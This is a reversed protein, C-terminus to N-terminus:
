IGWEEKVSKYNPLNATCMDLLELTAGSLNPKVYNDVIKQAAETQGENIVNQLEDEGVEKLITDLKGSDVLAMADRTLGDMLM